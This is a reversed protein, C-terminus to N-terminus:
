GSAEPGPKQQTHAEYAGLRAELDSVKPELEALVEELSAFQPPAGPTALASFSDNIIPCTGRLAKKLLDDAYQLVQAGSYGVEFVETRLGFKIREQKPIDWYRDRCDEVRDYLERLRMALIAPKATGELAALSTVQVNTLIAAEEAGSQFGNESLLIGRDAGLDSVIERLALVHLKSVRSKWHKCEVIWTVDFGVHHSKVLVDIDHTTRVGKMTVDTQADLGLKRFFDAAEDQYEKWAAAM